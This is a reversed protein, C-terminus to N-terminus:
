CTASGPSSGQDRSQCLRDIGKGPCAAEKRLKPEPNSMPVTKEFISSSYIYVINGQINVEFEGEAHCQVQISGKLSISDTILLHWSM